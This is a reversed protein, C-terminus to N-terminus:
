WAEWDGQFLNPFKEAFSPTEVCAQLKFVESWNLTIVQLWSRGLLSQTNGEVVAIPLQYELDQYKVPVEAEGLVVVQEGTYTKLRSKSPSLKGHVTGKSLSSWVKQNVVTVAAGTDIEMLLNHDNTCLNVELPKVKCETLNYMNM